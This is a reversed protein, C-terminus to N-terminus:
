TLRPSCGAAVNELDIFGPVIENVTRSAALAVTAPVVVYSSAVRVAVNVGDALRAVAVVYVAVTVPLSVVPVSIGAGDCHDNVVIAYAVVDVNNAGSATGCVADDPSVSPMVSPTFNVGVILPWITPM